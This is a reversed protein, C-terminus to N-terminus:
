NASLSTFKVWPPLLSLATSVIFSKDQCNVTHSVSETNKSWYPVRSMPNLSKNVFQKLILLLVERTTGLGVYIFWGIQNITM